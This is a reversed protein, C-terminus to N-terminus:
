PFLGAQKMLYLGVSPRQALMMKRFEENVREQSIIKLRERTQLIAQYTKEEIRFNLVTAFRIARLIRLPDDSFTVVPELPTKILKKDLDEIAGFLDIVEGFKEPSIDMALTNITFDRRSIDSYLDAVQVHPKRSDFKYSESRATVFELKFDHYNLTATGFRPFTVVKGGRVAKRFRHAFEPADGLVVFDIDTGEKGLYLDRVFGGVAYVSIGSQRAVGSVKIM